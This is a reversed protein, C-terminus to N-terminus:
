SGLTSAEAFIKKAEMFMERARELDFAVEKKPAKCVWESEELQKGKDEGIKMGSWLVINVNSDVERPEVRMM